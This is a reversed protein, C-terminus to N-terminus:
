ALPITFSFKSGKGEESEVSIEGGHLHVFDKCLILGLGTGTENETGLTSTKSDIRFLKETINQSMGIGNDQVSFFALKEDTKLEITYRVEGGENTFKIANTGLNRLITTLMNEDASIEYEEEEDYILSIAKKAAMPEIFHVVNEMLDMTSLKVSNITMTGTQLRAWSLLNELLSNADKASTYVLKLFKLQDEKSQSEIKKILIESFGMITNFPNKLDHAIISFFKDKTANAIELDYQAKRIKLHTNVRSLLEIGNFPKMIYDVAGLKFGKIIDETEVKATLFIVPINKTEPKSKLITCTEHGDMEPMMVDLLILDPKTNAVIALAQKGNTAVAINCDVESLLNGLLQLNKPVDDVILVLPKLEAM